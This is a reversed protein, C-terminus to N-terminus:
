ARTRNCFRYGVGDSRRGVLGARDFVKFITKTEAQKQAQMAASPIAIEHTILAAPHRGASRLAAKLSVIFLKLKTLAAQALWARMM